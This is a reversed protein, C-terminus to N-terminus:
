VSEPHAIMGPITSQADGETTSDRTAWEVNQIRGGSHPEHSGCDSRLDKTAAVRQRAAFALQIKDHLVSPSQGVGTTRCRLHDVPAVGTAANRCRFALTVRCLRIRASKARCNWHFAGVSCPPKERTQRAQYEDQQSQRRTVEPVIPECGRAVRKVRLPDRTM